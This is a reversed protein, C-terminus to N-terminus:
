GYIKDSLSGMRDIIQLCLGAAQAVSFTIQSQVPRAPQWDLWAKESNAPPRRGIVIRERCNGKEWHTPKKADPDIRSASPAHWSIKFRIRHSRGNLKWLRNGGGSM